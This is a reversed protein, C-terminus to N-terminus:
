WASGWRRFEVLEGTPIRCVGVPVSIAGDASGGAVIDASGSHAIPEVAPGDAREVERAPVFTRRKGKSRLEAALPMRVSRRCCEPRAGALRRLAPLALEQLGTMASLPNGPLGFL